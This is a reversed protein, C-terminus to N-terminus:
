SLSVLHCGEVTQIFHLDVALSAYYELINAVSALCVDNLQFIWENSM